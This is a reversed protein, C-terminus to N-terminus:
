GMFGWTQLEKLVLKWNDPHAPIVRPVIRGSTARRSNHKTTYGMAQIIYYQTTPLDMLSGNDDPLVIDVPHDFTSVALEHLLPLEEFDIAVPSAADLDLNM